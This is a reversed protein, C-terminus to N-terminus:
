RRGWRRRATIFSRCPLTHRRGWRRSSLVSCSGCANLKLGIKFNNSPPGGGIVKTLKDDVYFVVVNYQECNRQPM